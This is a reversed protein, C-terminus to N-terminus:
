DKKNNIKNVVPKNIKIKKTFKNLFDNNITVM